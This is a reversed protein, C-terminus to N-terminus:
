ESEVSKSAQKAQRIRYNMTLNIQRRRQQFDSETFFGPGTTVSRSRRTNFVDLVNLNLTGKGRFIDKSMSFDAYYLAKRKGQVTKQPAEYNTRLQVDFNRPFLFRSTHRAFWSYTSTEYAAVINSGDIKAYFLNFNFDLKWWKVPTYGSTFEVGFANESLLNETRTISNGDTNVSRIRDIRGKTVRYYVSSSISGKDFSKLHGAEMVNSFEPELDPNGSFFNRSDSYTVFPSLDNYFPRRVRRSYSLQVANDDTM